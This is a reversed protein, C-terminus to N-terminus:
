NRYVSSFLIWGYRAQHWVTGQNKHAVEAVTVQLDDKGTTASYLIRIVISIRVVCTRPDVISNDACILESRYTM